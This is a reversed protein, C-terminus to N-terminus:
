KVRVEVGGVRDGNISRFLTDLHYECPIFEAMKMNKYIFISKILDISKLYADELVEVVVVVM